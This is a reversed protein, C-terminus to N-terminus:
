FRFIPIAFRPINDSPDQRTDINGQFAIFGASSLYIITTLDSSICPFITQAGPTLSFNGMTPDPIGNFLASLPSLNNLSVNLESDCEFIEFVASQTDIVRGFTDVSIMPLERTSTPVIPSLSVVDTSTDYSLGEGFMTPNVFIGGSSPARSITTNYVDAIFSSVTDTSLDYELGSGFVGPSLSIEGDNLNITTNDVSSISAYILSNIGDYVLGGGFWSPSLDSFSISVDGLSLKNNSISFFNTDIDLALIGNEIKVGSLVTLPNLYKASISGVNLSIENSSNYNFFTPDIRTSVDAWSSIDSYNAATLQYFKNNVHALDGIESPITSLSYYNIIGTFNKNGVVFGGSDTGSGVYLRKTDLSYVPEGQDFIVSRRQDDTGRRFKIKSINVTAM